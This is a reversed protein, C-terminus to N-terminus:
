SNSRRVPPLTSYPTAPTRQARGRWGRGRQDRPERCEPGLRCAGGWGRGPRLHRPRETVEPTLRV